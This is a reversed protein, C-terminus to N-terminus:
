AQGAFDDWTPEVTRRWENERMGPALGGEQKGAVQVTSDMAVMAGAEAKISKGHPLAIKLMTFPGGSHLLEYKFDDCQIM